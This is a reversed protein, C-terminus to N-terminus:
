PEPLRVLVRFFRQSSLVYSDTMTLLGGTGPIDSWVGSWNGGTDLLSWRSDLDYWRAASSLISVATGGPTQAISAIRPYLEGNDPPTDGIFEDLNSIGDGDGDAGPMGNTIGGLYRYEFGDGMGDGDADLLYMASFESSENSSRDIATATLFNPPPMATFTNTFGIDGNTDAPLLHVAFLYTEGEGYASGDCGMSGFFEIRYVGFPVSNLMGVVTLNGGLNTAWTIVPFNQLSNAGTDPDKYDNATVGDYDLDIGLGGNSFISNVAVPNNSCDSGMAVGQQGNFAIVNGAEAAAGGIWNGWAGSTLGVGSGGNGLANTEPDCGIWNGQVLNEMNDSGWFYVGNGLNGSIVNEHGNSEGGILNGQGGDLRIGDGGNALARRGSKDTGIYNGQITNGVTDYGSLQIGHQRNGAIVNRVASTAGGITNSWCGSLLVGQANGLANSGTWDTGILNGVVENYLGNTGYIRIGSWGNGSIVNGDSAIRSGIRNSVSNWLDVGYHHNSVIGSGTVDVGIYNCQVVNGTADQGASVGNMRNGSIINRGGCACGVENRSADLGVGTNNGVPGVGSADVGVYNGHVTNNTARAGSIRVGYSDNGSVVNGQGPEMGGVVNNPGNVSIGNGNALVNSGTIDVGIYNGEIRNWQANTGELWVGDTSHGCIVNRAGASDGGIINAASFVRVGWPGNLLVNAGTRDTGILNGCVRNSPAGEEMYINASSNGAIVNGEGANTGGITNGAADSFYVGYTNSCAALGSCDTGIYNGLVVNGMSKGTWFFIGSHGNWSIVNRAGAASGGIVNNAGRVFVGCNQNPLRNTGNVDTGIYNGLVLNRLAESDLGIGKYNGSIINRAGANTGGIINRECDHVSIGSNANPSAALGSPTTGIYNGVVVNNTATGTHIEVGYVGNSSIVNREAANTGGIRHNSSWYIDIGVAANSMVYCSEVTCNSTIYFWLAAQKWKALRLGRFRSGTGRVVLGYDITNGGDLCVLPIGAYGPQSTGQIYVTETVMPLQGTPQITYPASLNFDITDAGANVNASNIAWRLTGASNADGQSTVTYTAARAACLAGLVVAAAGLVSHRKNTTKM